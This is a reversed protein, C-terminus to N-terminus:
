TSSDSKAPRGNHKKKDAFYDALAQKGLPFQVKEAEDKALADKGDNEVKIGARRLIEAPVAEEPQLTVGNAQCKTVRYFGEPRDPEGNVWIVDHRRLQGIISAGVPIPPDIRPIGFAQLPRPRLVSIGIRNKGHQQWVVLGESAPKIQVKRAPGDAPRVVIITGGKQSSIQVRRIEPYKRELEEQAQPLEREIDSRKKGSGANKRAVAEAISGKEGLGISDAISEIRSRMPQSIRVFDKRQINQLLKYAKLKAADKEPERWFTLDAFKSKWTVPYSGLIRLLSKSRTKAYGAWDPALEPIALGPRPKIEGSRNPRDATYRLVRDRWTHPPICALIAADEAHNFLSARNKPYPFNSEGDPTVFWSFRFHHTESGKIRQVLPEGIRYDLRPAAVGYRQFLRALAVVFQRPRAGIRALSSPDNDPYEGTENLLIKKKRESVALKNVCQSFTLWHGNGSVLWEYPTRNDKAKNHSACSAVLNSQVDPGGRSRPFIHDKDMEGGCGGLLKYVCGDTEAALRDKLSELKREKQTGKAARETDPEPIELNIFSVRGFRWATEGFQGAKFLIHELRHLVRADRREGCPNPARRIAVNQWDVGADKMSKGEAAMKLHEFCLSTRGTPKDNKLLDYLQRAIKKQSNIKLLRKTIADVGPAKERDAWWDLFIKKESDHLPRQRFNERIRLNNIAARYALERFKGKRPTAKGCWSCGTKLRNDFRAPRLVKNLLGREGALEKKWREAQIQPIGASKAFGDVVERVDAEKVSRHEAVRPRAPKTGRECALQLCMELEEASVKIRSATAAEPEIKFKEIRARVQDSLTRDSSPIRASLLFEKLKSPSMQELDVADWKYGRKQFILTLARVFGAADRKGSKAVEVWSLSAKPDVGKQKYVGPQVMYAPNRMLKYPDPLRQGDPLDQRLAWSRLRALRMKKAHRSRRGRRLIRRQELDAEHFDLFTEAHLVENGRVVAIGGAHEGFDIGVRVTSLFEQIRDALLPSAAIAM